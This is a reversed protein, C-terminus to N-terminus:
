IVFPVDTKLSNEMCGPVLIRMKLGRVHSASAPIDRLGLGAQDVSCPRTWGPSWQSVRYKFFLDEFM